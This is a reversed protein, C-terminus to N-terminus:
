DPILSRYYQANTARTTGPYNEIVQNFIEIAKQNQDLRQYSRGAFYLADGSFRDQIDYRLVKTLNEVASTLNGRQYDNYGRNYYQRAAEPYAIERISNYIRSAVTTDLANSDVDYMADATAVRDGTLHIEIARQLQELAKVYESRQQYEELEELTVTLDGELSNIQTELHKITSSTENTIARKEETLENIVNNKSNIRTPLVLFSMILVGIALGLFIYGGQYIYDFKDSSFSKKNAKNPKKNDIQPLLVDESEFTNSDNHESLSEFYRLATYNNKDIALVKLLSKKAKDLDEARMYLLALVCHAKIFNPNLSVVKKLQIIALDASNQNIYNLAQNYKKIATNLRDLKHQNNQVEDIYFDAINDKSDYNKSIIWQELALVVEGIEFYILGLLNRADINTKDYKLCRKLYDIAGSLDRIKTQQLGKNYLYKSTNMIKKYLKVEMNCHECFNNKNIDKTCKPCIM